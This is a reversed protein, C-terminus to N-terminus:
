YSGQIRRAIRNMVKVIVPTIARSDRALTKSWWGTAQPIEEQAWKGTRFVPHRVYGKDTQMSGRTHTRIRVGATRAGTLVSVTIRQNGQEENLGGRKPLSVYAAGRVNAILPQTAARIDRVMEQQAGREGQVRMRTAIAHLRLSAAPQGM